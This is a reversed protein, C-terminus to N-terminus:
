WELGFSGVILIKCTGENGDCFPYSNDLLAFYFDRHNIKRESFKGLSQHLKDEILNDDMYIKDCGYPKANVKRLTVNNLGNILNNIDILSDVTLHM